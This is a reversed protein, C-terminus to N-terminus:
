DQELRRELDKAMRELTRAAFLLTSKASASSFGDAETRMEKAMLRWWSVKAMTGPVARKESGGFRRKFAQTTTTSTLASSFGAPPEIAHL